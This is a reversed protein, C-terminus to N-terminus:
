HFNLPFSYNVKTYLQQMEKIYKKHLTESLQANSMITYMPGNNTSVAGRKNSGANSASQVEGKGGKKNEKEEDVSTAVKRRRGVM